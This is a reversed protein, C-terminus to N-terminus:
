DTKLKRNDCQCTGIIEECIRFYICDNCWNEGSVTVRPEYDECVDQEATVFPHGKSTYAPCKVFDPFLPTPKWRRREADSYYGYYIDFIRGEIEIRKYFEGEKVDKM